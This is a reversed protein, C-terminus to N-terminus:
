KNIGKQEALKRFCDNMKGWNEKIYKIVEPQLPNEYRNVGGKYTVNGGPFIMYMKSRSKINFGVGGIISKHSRSMSFLIPEQKDMFSFNINLTDQRIILDDFKLPLEGFPISKSTDSEPLYNEDCQLIYIYWRASDYLDRLQLSDVISPYVFCKNTLTVVERQKANQQNSNCSFLMVVTIFIYYRMIETM